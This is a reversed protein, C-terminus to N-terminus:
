VLIQCILWMGLGGKVSDWSGETLIYHLTDGTWVHVHADIYGM